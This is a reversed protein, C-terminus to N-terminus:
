ISLKMYQQTIPDNRLLIEARDMDAQNDVGVTEATSYALRIPLNHEIVRMMDIREAKELPTQPLQGFRHVFEKAFGIIGTQQYRLVEETEDLRNFSPIPARSLYLARGDPAGVIKVCNPDDFDEDREIKSVLNVVPPKYKQYIEIVDKLMGPSVMIEDGQVMLVFDDDELDTGINEIAEDTRDVCGPHTDKTMVVEAGHAEAVEKIEFDCTAIVIRDIAECLRCREYIHLILPLGLIPRLPKGPFRTSAMRAPIVCINKTV